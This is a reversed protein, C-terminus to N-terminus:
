IVVTTKGKEEKTEKKIAEQKERKSVKLKGLRNKRREEEKRTRHKGGMRKM